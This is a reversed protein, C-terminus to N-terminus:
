WAERLLAVLEEVDKVRRPNTYLFFDTLADEALLQLTDQPIGLDRLRSPIGLSELFRAVQQAAKEAMQLDSDGNRPTGMAWALRAQGEALVDRNFRMGPVLLVGSALGQHVGFRVQLSHALASVIGLGGALADSARNSLLAASALHIRVAPDKPRERLLPMYTLCLDLAERLDAHSFPNLNPLQLAGVVGAFTTVSTHLFLSPSATLLAEADLFISIPRTKPDYLELRHRKQPDLVAAGARNAATTPTTLVVINPVKPKSLRPSIPPRGPPYQTCLDYISGEEALLITIARATVVASGGGVAILLDAQAQRAKEVGELVSPLPSETVVGDYVGALREGLGERIRELLNTNRAVSRASVVFPRRAGAREVERGLHALADAGAYIRASSGVYRFSTALPM